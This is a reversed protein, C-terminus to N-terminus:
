LHHHFAHITSWPPPPLGTHRPMREARTDCVHPTTLHLATRHPLPLPPMPRCDSGGSLSPEQPSMLAPPPCLVFGLREAEGEWGEAGSLLFLLARKDWLSDAAWILHYLRSFLLQSHLLPTHRSNTYTPTQISSTGLPIAATEMAGHNHATKVWFNIKKPKPKEFYMMRLNSIGCLAVLLSYLITM